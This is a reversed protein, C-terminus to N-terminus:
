QPKSTEAPPRPTQAGAAGVPMAAAAAPGVLTGQLLGRVDLRDPLPGGSDLRASLGSMPLAVQDDAGALPGRDGGQHFALSPEGDQDPECTVMAGLRDPVGQDASESRKGDPQSPGQGPILAVLHEVVRPNLLGGPQLDVEGVRVRRPLAATVLVSIAKQALVQGLSGVEGRPGAFLEVLDGGFEVVTGTLAEVVM